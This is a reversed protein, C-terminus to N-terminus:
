WVFQVYRTYRRGSCMLVTTGVVLM